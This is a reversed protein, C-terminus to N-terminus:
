AAARGNEKNKELAALYSLIIRNSWKVVTDSPAGHKWDERIQWVANELGPPTLKDLTSARHAHVFSFLVIVVFTLQLASINLSKAAALTKKVESIPGDLDVRGSLLALGDDSVLEAFRTQVLDLSRGYADVWWTGSRANSGAELEDADALIAELREIAAHIFDGNAAFRPLQAVRHAMANLYPLLGDGICDALEDRLLDPNPERHRRIAAVADRVRAYSYSKPTPPLKFIAAMPEQLLAGLGSHVSHLSKLYKLARPLSTKAAEANVDAGPPGLAVDDFTVIWHTACLVGGPREVLEPSVIMTPEELKRKAQISLYSLLEGVEKDSPNNPDLFRLPRRQLGVAFVPCPQRAIEVFKFQDPRKMRLKVLTRFYYWEQVASPSTDWDKEAAVMLMCDADDLALKSAREFAEERQSQLIVKTDYAEPAVAVLAKRLAEANHPQAAWLILVKLGAHEAFLPPLAM